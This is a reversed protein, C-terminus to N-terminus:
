LPWFGSSTPPPFEEANQWFLPYLVQFGHHKLIKAFIINKKSLDAHLILTPLLLSFVSKCLFHTWSFLATELGMQNKVKYSFRWTVELHPCFLHTWSFLATQLIMRNRVKYSFRWIIELFYKLPGSQVPKSRRWTVCIMCYNMLIFIKM